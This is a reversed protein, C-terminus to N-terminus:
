LDPNTRREWFIDRESLDFKAVLRHVVKTIVDINEFEYPLYITVTDKPHGAYNRVAVPSDFEKDFFSIGEYSDLDDTSRAITYGLRDSFYSIPVSLIAQPVFDVDDLNNKSAASRSEWSKFSMSM